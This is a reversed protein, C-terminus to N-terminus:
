ISEMPAAVEHVWDAGFHENLFRVMKEMDVRLAKREHGKGTTSEFIWENTVPDHPSLLTPNGAADMVRAEGATSYFTVGNTLTGVPATGDFLVLGKTGETTSRFAMDALVGLKINGVESVRMKLTATTADTTTLYVDMYASQKTSTYDQAAIFDIRARPAGSETALTTNDTDNQFGAASVRLIADGAQTRYPTAQTNRAKAGYINPFVSTGYARQIIFPAAADPGYIALVGNNMGYNLRLSGGYSWKAFNATIGTVATNTTDIQIANVTTSANSGGTNFTIPISVVPFARVNADNKTVTTAL